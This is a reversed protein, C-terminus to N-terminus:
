RTPRTSRRRRAAPDARPITPCETRGWPTSAQSLRDTERGHGGGRRRRHVACAIGRRGGTRKLGNILTVLIRAGSCGIPHGLAVAGGYINVKEPPIGLEKEAAM